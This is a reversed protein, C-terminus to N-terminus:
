KLNVTNQGPSPRLKCHAIKDFNSSLLDHLYRVLGGGVVAVKKKYASKDKTSHDM